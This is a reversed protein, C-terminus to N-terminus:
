KAVFLGNSKAYSSVFPPDRKQRCVTFPARIKKKFSLLWLTVQTIVNKKFVQRKKVDFQITNFLIISLTVLTSQIIHALVLKVALQNQFYFSLNLDEKNVNKGKWPM